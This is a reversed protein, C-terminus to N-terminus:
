RRRRAHEEHHGDGAHHARRQRDRPLRDGIQLGAVPEAGRRRRLLPHLEEPDDGRRDRDAQRDHHQRLRELEALRRRAVRAGTSAAGCADIMCASTCPKMLRWGTAQIRKLAPAIIATLM